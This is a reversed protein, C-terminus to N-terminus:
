ARLRLMDDLIELTRTKGLPLNGNQKWGVLSFM